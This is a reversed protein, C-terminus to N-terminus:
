GASNEDCEGSFLAFIEDEYLRDFNDPIVFNDDNMFGYNIKRKPKEEVALMKIIPKGNDTVIVSKGFNQIQAIANSLDFQQQEVIVINEMM